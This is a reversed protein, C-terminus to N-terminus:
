RKGNSDWVRKKNIAHKTKIEESLSTGFRDLLAIAVIAVDAIEEKLENNTKASLVEGIEELLKDAIDKVTANPFTAKHWKLVEKEIKTM